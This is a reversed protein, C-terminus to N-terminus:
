AGFPDLLSVVGFLKRAGGRSVAMLAQVIWLERVHAEAQLLILAAVSQGVQNRTLMRALIESSRDWFGDRRLKDALFHRAAAGDDRRVDIVRLGLDSSCVDSSWDRSCRTHRRRSSFFFFFM